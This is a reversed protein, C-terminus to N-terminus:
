EKNANEHLMQCEQVGRLQVQRYLTLFVQRSPHHWSFLPVPM